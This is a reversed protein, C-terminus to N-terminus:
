ASKIPDKPLDKPILGQRVAHAHLVAVAASARRTRVSDARSTLVIPV